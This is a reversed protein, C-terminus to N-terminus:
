IEMELVKEGEGIYRGGGGGGKREGEGEEEEEEEEKGRKKSGREDMTLKSETPKTIHMGSPLSNSKQGGIDFFEEQM